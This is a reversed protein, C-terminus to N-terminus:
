KSRKASDSIGQQFHLETRTRKRASGARHIPSAVREPRSSLAQLPESVMPSQLDQSVNGDVRRDVRHNKELPEKLVEMWLQKLHSPDSWKDIKNGLPSHYDMATNLWKQLAPSRFTFNMTYRRDRANAMKGLGGGSTDNGSNSM